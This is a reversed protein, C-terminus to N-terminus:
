VLLRNLDINSKGLNLETIVMDPHISFKKNTSEKLLIMEDLNFSGPKSSTKLIKLDSIIKIDNILMIAKLTKYIDEGFSRLLESTPPEIIIIEIEHDFTNAVERLSTALEYTEFNSGYIVVKRSKKM